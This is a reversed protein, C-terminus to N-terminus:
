FGIIRRAPPWSFTTQVAGSMRRYEGRKERFTTGHPLFGVKLELFSGVILFFRNAQMVSRPMAQLQTADPCLTASGEVGWESTGLMVTAGYKLAPELAM